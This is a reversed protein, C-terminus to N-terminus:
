LNPYLFYLTAYSVCFIFFIHLNDCVHSSNHHKCSSINRGHDIEQNIEFKFYLVNTQVSRTKGSEFQRVQPIGLECLLELEVM